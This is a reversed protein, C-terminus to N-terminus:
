DRLVKLAENNERKMQILKFGLEASQDGTTKEQSEMKDRIVGIETVVDEIVQIKKTNHKVDEQVKTLDRNVEFLKEQQAYKYQNLSEIDKQGKLEIVQFHKNIENIQNTYGKLAQDLGSFDFFVYPNHGQAHNDTM